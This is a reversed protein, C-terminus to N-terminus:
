YRLSGKQIKKSAKRKRLLLLVVLIVLLLSMPILFKLNSLNFPGAFLIGGTIEEGTPFEGCSQTESAKDITTGCDNKDTCYRTQIGDVCNGWNTCDWQEQCCSKTEIPKTKTTRCKNTDNCM